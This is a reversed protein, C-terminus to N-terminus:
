GLSVLAEIVGLNDLFDKSTPIVLDSELDDPKGDGVWVIKIKEEGVVAQLINLDEQTLEVVTVILILGADIFLHSVEAFRRVHERWGGPADHRKLDANVGYLLSGIGLYYVLRGSAFLYSEMQRALTKRGTGKKGTIVLISSAQQYRAARQSMTVDTQIWKKNRLDVDDRIQAEEDALAELIIGGGVIQYGDVIVFQSTQRLADSADFAVPHALKITVEAVDHHHIEKLVNTKAYDSADIVQHIDSLVMKEKMTGLKFMYSYDFGLPEKGLWFLSVRLLRSVHPLMENARAVIQGRRIYIQEQM